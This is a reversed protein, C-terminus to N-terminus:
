RKLWDTTLQQSCRDSTVLHWCGASNLLTAAVREALPSDKMKRGVRLM